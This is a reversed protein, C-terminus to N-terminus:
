SLVTIMKTAIFNSGYPFYSRAKALAEVECLAQVFSFDKGCFPSEMVVLWVLPPLETSISKYM